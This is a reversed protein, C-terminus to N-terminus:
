NSKLMHVLSIVTLIISVFYNSFFITVFEVNNQSVYLIYILTGFLLLIFKSGFVAMFFVVFDEKSKTIKRELLYYQIIGLFIVIAPMFLVATESKLQYFKPLFLLIFIYELILFITISLYFKKATM